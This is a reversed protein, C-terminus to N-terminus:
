KKKSDKKHSLIYQTMKKLTKEDFSYLPMRGQPNFQKPNKLWQYIWEPRLRRGADILSPGSVGGRPQRALNYSQHCAICSYDREFLIKVRVRTGKSLEPLELPPINKLIKLSMLHDTMQEAEKLNLTPHPGTYQPQGKLFGPDRTHGALRITEPQQLYNELWKKQFKDGAFFLDPASKQVENKSFRHCTDCQKTKVLVPVANAEVCWIGAILLFSGIWFTKKLPRM